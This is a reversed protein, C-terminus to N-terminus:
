LYLYLYTYLYTYLHTYLDIHIGPMMQEYQDLNNLMELRAKELKQEDSFYDEIINSDLMKDMSQMAAKIDEPNM